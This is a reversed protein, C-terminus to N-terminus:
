RCSQGYITDATILGFTVGTHGIAARPRLTQATRSGWLQERLDLLQPPFVEGPHIDRLLRPEAPGGDATNQATKAEMAQTIQLRSGGPAAVFVRSRAVQQVQVDLHQPAKAGVGKSGITTTATAPRTGAPLMHVAPDVVM